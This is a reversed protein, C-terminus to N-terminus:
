IIPWTTEPRIDCRRSMFRQLTVATGFRVSIGPEIWQGGSSGFGAGGLELAGGLNIKM